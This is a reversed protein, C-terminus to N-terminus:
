VGRFVIFSEIPEQLAEAIKKLIFLSLETYKGQELRSIVSQTTKILQALQKQTLKAQKRYERIKCSIQYNTKEELYALQLEPDEKIWNKLIDLANKASM